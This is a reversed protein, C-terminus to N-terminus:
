KEGFFLTHLKKFMVNSEYKVRKEIDAEKMIQNYVEYLM